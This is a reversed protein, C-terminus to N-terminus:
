MPQGQFDNIKHNRDLCRHNRNKRNVLMRAQIKVQKRQKNQSKNAKNRYKLNRGELVVPFYQQLINNRM